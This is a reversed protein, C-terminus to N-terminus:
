GRPKNPLLEDDLSRDLAVQAPHAPAGQTEREAEDIAKLISDSGVDIAGDSVAKAWEARITQEELLDADFEAFRQDENTAAKVAGPQSRTTTPGARPAVRGTNSAGHPFGSGPETMAAFHGAKGFTKSATAGSVSPNPETRATPAVWAPPELSRRRMPVLWRALAGVVLLAAALPWWPAVPLEVDATTLGTQSSPSRPLGAAAAEAIFSGGGSSSLMTAPQRVPEIAAIKPAAEHIAADSPAAAVRIFGSPAPKAIRPAAATAVRTTEARRYAVAATAAGAGPPDLLLVYDRRTTGDCGAQVALRVVPENVPRATTVLLQTGAATRDITVRGTLLHPHGSDGAADAIVRVCAATLSQSKSADIPVVVRLPQGLSSQPAADGLSLALVCPAALLALAGSILGAVAAILTSIPM